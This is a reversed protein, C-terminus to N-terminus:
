GACWRLANELVLQFQPNLWVELSHGPTFVCVRGRGQRRVYCCPCIKEPFNHYPEDVYKAVEGQAPAYSAMLVDVDDALIELYYQEDKECFMEVGETVPHAKLPGVTMPGQNPHYSFRSGILRDLVETNEGPVTGSHLVLLGGGKEVFDVFAQQVAASKWSDRLEPTTEDSKCMLVVSYDVLSDARFERGDCIVDFQYGRGRLPEIGGIAVEGPHYHEDCLLLVRM